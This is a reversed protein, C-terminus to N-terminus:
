GAELASTVYRRELQYWNARAGLRALVSMLGYRIRLLFLFEAPLTLKLMKLKAKAISGFTEKPMSLPQVKDELLPGYFARVLDRATDFDYRRKEDIIGIDIFARHLTEREDQHVALTLRALARVFSPEFVRTCGYDLMAVRSCGNKGDIFLYNGPHPDCNYLGHSFLTGLYFEFLASGIRDRQAQPPQTQLFAEFDLGDIYRTTLVRRGCFDRFVEPLLLTADDAFLEAFRAQARAEHEYDCEELLRTRMENIFDDIHAHPFIMSQIRTAIWASRFDASIAQDIEPYRVKVALQRGDALRARHVQGISAAAIPKTELVTLLREAHVQGLDEHLIASLQEFPMPQAHSQLAAFASQLQEPIAVDLYSVMQGLKMALGKLQGLSGVIEAIKELETESLARDQSLRKKERRVARAARLMAMMTGGLRSLSKTPLQQNSDLLRDAIHERIALERAQGAELARTEDKPPKEEAM